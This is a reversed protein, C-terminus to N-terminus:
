KPIVKKAITLSILLSNKYKIPLHDVEMYNNFLCLSPSPPIGCGMIVSLKTTVSIWFSYVSQCTWLAHLYDDTSGKTCQSCIDTDRLGMTFMKKETIHIRHIIKFQILQLNTNNTMSFTNNCIEKWLDTNPSLALDNEWKNMPIIITTDNNLILKHLKLAQIEARTNRMIKIMGAPRGNIIRSIGAFM